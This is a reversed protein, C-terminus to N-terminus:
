GKVGSWEKVKLQMAKMAIQAEKAEPSKDNEFNKMAKLYHQYEKSKSVAFAAESAELYREKRDEYSSQEAFNKLSGAFTEMGKGLDLALLENMHGMLLAVEEESFFELDGILGILYPMKGSKTMELSAFITKRGSDSQAVLENVYRMVLQIDEQHKELNEAVSM